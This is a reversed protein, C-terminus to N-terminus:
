GIKGIQDFDFGDDRQHHCTNKGAKGHLPHDSGVLHHDNNRHHQGEVEAGLVFLGATGM